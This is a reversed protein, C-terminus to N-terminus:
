GVWVTKPSSTFKEDEDEPPVEDRGLHNVASNGYLPATAVLIGLVINM